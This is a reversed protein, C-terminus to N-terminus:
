APNDCKCDTRESDVFAVVSLDTDGGLNDRSFDCRVLACGVFMCEEMNAGRFEVATFSCDVFVTRFMHAWYLSVEKFDCRMFVADSLTAGQMLCDTFSCDLVLASDADFSNNQGTFTQKLLVTRM